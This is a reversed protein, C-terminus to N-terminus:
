QIIPLVAMFVDVRCNMDITCPTDTGDTNGLMGDWNTTWLLYKGDQSISGPTFELGNAYTHALRYVEGSGNTSVALLENDWADIASFTNYIGTGAQMLAIFPATDSANDNAWSM